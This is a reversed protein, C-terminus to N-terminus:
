TKFHPNRLLKTPIHEGVKTTSSKKFNNKCGNM